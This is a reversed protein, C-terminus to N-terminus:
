DFNALRFDSPWPLRRAKSANALWIWIAWDGVCAKLEPFRYKVVEVALQKQMNSKNRWYRLDGEGENLGCRAYVVHVFDVYAKYQIADVGLRRQIQDKLLTNRGETPLPKPIPPGVGEGDREAGGECVTLRARVPSFGPYERRRLEM